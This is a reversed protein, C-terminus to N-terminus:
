RLIMKVLKLKNKFPPYRLPIDLWTARHMVSKLHSFAKFGAEGHYSGIGSYGAGGFPLASNTFHMITDNVTVGGASTQTLIENLKKKDQTFIYMSLPKSKQRIFAIAEHWHTFSVVPLLPGFIEEQMLASNLDPQAIISLSVFREEAVVQGGFVLQGQQLLHQMRVVNAENIMRPYDPNQIPNKGWMAVAAKEMERILEDHVSAEVLVYDPAICTQGTNISKGWIIRKAALAINVTKDVVVPSKGGLELVVPTLNEAAAKMVLKGIRPSGTFFIMDFHQELLVRSVQADGNVVKIYRADFAENILQELLTSTAPSMESPKLIACNGAAIAAILPAVVLQFPYNWPAIILCVGHPEPVIRSKSPFSALPNSVCKPKAWRKTKKVFHGIEELVIGIETTYAEFDSKGLDTFLAQTIKKENEHILKKLKKLQSIRFTIAQTQGSAYYEKQQIVLDSINGNPM